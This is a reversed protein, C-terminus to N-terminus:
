EAAEAPRRAKSSPRRKLVQKLYQGTYSQPSAAIEEPADIAVVERGGDRERAISATAVSTASHNTERLPQPLGALGQVM